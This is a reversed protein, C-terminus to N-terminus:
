SPISRPPLNRSCSKMSCNSSLPFRRASRASPRAAAKTSYRQRRDASRSRAEDQRDPIRRRQHRVGGAEYPYIKTSGKIIEVTPTPDSRRWSPAASGCSATPGPVPSSFDAKRYQVMTARRCSWINEASGAIPAPRGFDIVWRWWFDDLTGLANPPTELVMPGKTLDLMGVFYVTDANATLFLSKADMLDSFVMVENDKVGAAQFGEHIAAMNVGQFTNIFAEYAHTFDLNDYVKELTAASPAGDKFELVGLRSEVRDPTSISPPIAAQAFAENGRNLVTAFLLVALLSFKGHRPKANFM